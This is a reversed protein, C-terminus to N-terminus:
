LGEKLSKLFYISFGLSIYCLKYYIEIHNISKDVYFIPFIYYIMNNHSTMMLIMLIYILVVLIALTKFKDKICILIINLILLMDLCLDLFMMSSFEIDLGISIRPISVYIMVIFCSFILIHSLFFLYKYLFVKSRGFFSILPKIFSMDHDLALFLVFMANLILFIQIFLSKIYTQYYEPYLMVEYKHYENKSILYLLAIAIVQYIVLMMYKKKHM